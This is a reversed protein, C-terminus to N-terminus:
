RVLRGLIAWSRVSTFAGQRRRIIAARFPAVAVRTVAASPARPWAVYVGVGIVAALLAAAAAAVLVGRHTRSAARAPGVMRYGVRPVTEIRFADHALGARRLKTMCATIAEDGVIRGDWCTAILADRSVVADFRRALAVLVKMVRPELTERTAGDGMQRVSPRIPVGRLSFDAVQSLEVPELPDKATM